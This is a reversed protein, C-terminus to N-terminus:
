HPATMLCCDHIRPGIWNLQACGAIEDHHQKTGPTGAHEAESFSCFSCHIQGSWRAGSHGSILARCCNTRSSQTLTLLFSSMGKPFNRELTAYRRLTTNRREHSRLVWLVRSMPRRTMATTILWSLRQPRDGKTRCSLRQETLVPSRKASTVEKM